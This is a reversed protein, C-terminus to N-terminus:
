WAATPPNEDASACRARPRALSAAPNDPRIGEDQLFDFFDRANDFEEYAANFGPFDRGPDHLHVTTKVVHSFDLGHAALIAGLTRGGSILPVAM